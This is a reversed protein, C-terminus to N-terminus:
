IQLMGYCNEQENTVKQLDDHVTESVIVAFAGVGGHQFGEGLGIQLLGPAVAQVRAAAPRRVEDAGEAGGRLRVDM